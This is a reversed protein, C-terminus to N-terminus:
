PHAPPHDPPLACTVPAGSPSSYQYGCREAVAPVETTVAYPSVPVPPRAYSREPLQPDGRERVIEWYILVEGPM